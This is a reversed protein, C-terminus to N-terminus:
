KNEDWWPYVARANLVKGGVGDDRIYKLFRYELSIECIVHSKESNVAPYLRVGLQNDPMYQRNMSAIKTKGAEIGHGPGGIAAERAGERAIKQINISTTILTFTELCFLLIVVLVLCVAVTEVM